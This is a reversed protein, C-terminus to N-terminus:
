VHMKRRNYQLKLNEEMIGTYYVVCITLICVRKCFIQINALIHMAFCLMEGSTTPLTFPCASAHGKKM